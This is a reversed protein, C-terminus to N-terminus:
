TQDNIGINYEAGELTRKLRCPYSKRKSPHDPNVHNEPSKHRLLSLLCPCALSAWQSPGLPEVPHASNRTQTLFTTRTRATPTLIVEWGGSSTSDSTVSAPRTLSTTVPIFLTTLHPRALGGALTCKTNSLRGALLCLPPSQRGTIITTQM